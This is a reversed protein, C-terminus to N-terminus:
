LDVAIQRDVAPAAAVGGVIMGVPAPKAVIQKQDSVRNVAALFHRCPSALQRSM